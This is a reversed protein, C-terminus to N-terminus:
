VAEQARLYRLSQENFPTPALGFLEFAQSSDCTNGEMMMQLHDRTIPIFEFRDLLFLWPKLALV